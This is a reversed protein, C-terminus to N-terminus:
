PTWHGAVPVHGPGGFKFPPVAYTPNLQGQNASALYWTSTSPRYVGVRTVGDGVWDGVVPIDTSQGFVFPPVAYPTNVQNTSGLYWTSTSTRFIGIRVTGTGTWDGAVPIDGSDGYIFPATVYAPAFANASALYWTIGMASLYTDGVRTTGTGTWDGVVPNEGTQGYYFPTVAFPTNQQNSSALFWMWPMGAVVDSENRYIGVRTVGSGTWDGVVPVDGPNGYIFPAVAYAANDQNAAALYWTGTSPLYTGVTDPRHRSGDAIADADSSTDGPADIAGEAWADRPGDLPGDWPPVSAVDQAAADGADAPGTELADGADADGADADGADADGADADGAELVDEAVVDARPSAEGDQGTADADV